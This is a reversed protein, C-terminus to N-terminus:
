EECPWAVVMVFASDEVATLEYPTDRDLVLVGGTQLDFRKGASQALLHGQITQIMIRGASKHEQISTKAQIATVVVRLDSYHVVTKSNRGSQWYPEHRLQEVQDGLDLALLPGETPELARATGRSQESMM